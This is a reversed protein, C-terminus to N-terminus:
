QSPAAHPAGSTTVPKEDSSATVAAVGFSACATPRLPVSSDHCPLAHVAPSSGPWYSAIQSLPGDSTHATPTPPTMAWKSPCAHVCIM